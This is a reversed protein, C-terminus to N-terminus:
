KTINLDYEGALVLTLTDMGLTKELKGFKKMQLDRLEEFCSVWQSSGYAESELCKTYFDDLPITISCTIRDEQAKEALCKNLRYAAYAFGAVAIGASVTLVTYGGVFAILARGAVKSTTAWTEALAVMGGVEAIVESVCDHKDEADALYWAGDYRDWLDDWPGRTDKGGPTRAEKPTDDPHYFNVITLGHRLFHENVRDLYYAATPIQAIRPDNPGGPFATDPDVGRERLIKRGIRHLLSFEAGMYTEISDRVEGVRTLVIPNQLDFDPSLNLKLKLERDFAQRKLLLANDTYTTKEILKPIDEESCAGATLLIM